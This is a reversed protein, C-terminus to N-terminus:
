LEIFLCTKKESGKLAVALTSQEVFPLKAPYILSM